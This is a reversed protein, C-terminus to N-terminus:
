HFIFNYDGGEGNLNVPGRFDTSPGWLPDTSGLNLFWQELHIHATIRVTLGTLDRNILGPVREMLPQTPWPSPRAAESSIIYFTKYLPPTSHRPLQPTVHKRHSNHSLGPIPKHKYCRLHFFTRVFSSWSSLVLEEPDSDYLWYSCSVEWQTYGLEIGMTVYPLCLPSVHMTDVKSAIRTHTMNPTKMCWSTLTRFGAAHELAYAFNLEYRVSFVIQWRRSSWRTRTIDPFLQLINHYDCFFCQKLVSHQYVASHHEHYFLHYLGTSIHHCVTVCQLPLSSSVPSYLPYGTGKVSGRFTTYGANSGSICV